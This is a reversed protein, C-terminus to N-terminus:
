KFKPSEVLARTREYTVFDYKTGEEECVQRAVQKWEGSALEPFFVDGSLELKIETLELKEALGIAQQFIQAGGIVFVQPDLRGAQELAEQLTKCVTCGPASFGQQRSVVFNQRKPLPGGTKSAIAEYTKRGMVVPHNLTLQRFRKLDGKLYLPQGGDKGIVRNSAVSAIITVIPKDM